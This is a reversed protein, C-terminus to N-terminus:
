RGGGIQGKALQLGVALGLMYSINREAKLMDVMTVELDDGIERVTPNDSDQLAQMIEWSAGTYDWGQALTEHPHDFSGAENQVDFVCYGEIMAPAVRSARRFLRRLEATTLPPATYRHARRSKPVAPNKASKKSKSM